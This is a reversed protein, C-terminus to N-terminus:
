NLVFSRGANTTTRSATYPCGCLSFLNAGARWGWLGWLVGHWCAGEEIGGRADWDCLHGLGGEM